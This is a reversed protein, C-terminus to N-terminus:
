LNELLRCGLSWCTPSYASPSSSSQSTVEPSRYLKGVSSRDQERSLDTVKEMSGCDMSDGALLDGISGLAVLPYPVVVLFTDFALYAQGFDQKGRSGLWIGLMRDGTRFAPDRTGSDGGRPSPWM